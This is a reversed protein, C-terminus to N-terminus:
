GNLATFEAWTAVNLWRNIAGCQCEQVSYSGSVSDGAFRWKHGKVHDEARDFNKFRDGTVWHFHEANAYYPTVMDADTAFLAGLFIGWQDWTAAMDEGGNQRRPSDGTLIVDFAAERKRSGHLSLRTFNVGALNAAKRLELGDLTDSHIRM